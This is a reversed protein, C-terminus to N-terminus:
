LAFVFFNLSFYFSVYYFDIVNRRSQERILDNRMYVYLFIKIRHERSRGRSGVDNHTYTYTGPRIHLLGNAFCFVM